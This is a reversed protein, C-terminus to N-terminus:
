NNNKSPSLKYFFLNSFFLNFFLSSVFTPKGGQQQIRTILEDQAIAIDFVGKGTDSDPPPPTSSTSESSSPDIFRTIPRLAARISAGLTSASRVQNTTSTPLNRTIRLISKMIYTTSSLTSSFFINFRFNQQYFDSAFFYGLIVLFLLFYDNRSFQIM